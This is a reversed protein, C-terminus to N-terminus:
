LFLFLVISKFVLFEHAIRLNHTFKIFLTYFKSLIVQKLLHFDPPNISSKSFSKLSLSLLVSTFVSTIAPIVVNIVIAYISATLGDTRDAVPM